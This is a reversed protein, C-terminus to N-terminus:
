ILQCTEYGNLLKMHEEKLVTGSIWEALDERYAELREMYAAAREMALM